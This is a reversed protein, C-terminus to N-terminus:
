ILSLFYLMSELVGAGISLVWSPPSLRPRPKLVVDTLYERVTLDIGAGCEVLLPWFKYISEGILLVTPSINPLRAAERGQRLVM